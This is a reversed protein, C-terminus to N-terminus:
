IVWAALQAGAIIYRIGPDPLYEDDIFTRYRPRLRLLGSPGVGWPSDPELTRYVEGNIPWVRQAINTDFGGPDSAGEIGPHEDNPEENRGLHWVAIESENLVAVDFFVTTANDSLFGSFSVGISQGEAVPLDLENDMVLDTWELSSLETVQVWSSGTPM